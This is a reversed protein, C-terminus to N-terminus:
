SRIANRDRTLDKISAFQRFRRLFFCDSRPVSPHTPLLSSEHVSCRWSLHVGSHKDLTSQQLLHSLLQLWAGMRLRPWAPQIAKALSFARPRLPEECQSQLQIQQSLLIFNSFYHSWHFTLKRSEIPIGRLPDIIENNTEWHYQLM